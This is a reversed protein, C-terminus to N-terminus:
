LESDGENEVKIKEKRIKDLKNKLKKEEDQAKLCKNRSTDAVVMCEDLQAKKQVIVAKLNGIDKEMDRFAKQEKGSKRQVLIYFFSLTETM